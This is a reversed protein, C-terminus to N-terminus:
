TLDVNPSAPPVFENEAQLKKLKANLIELDREHSERVQILTRRPLLPHSFGIFADLLRTLSFPIFM